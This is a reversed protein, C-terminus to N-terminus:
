FFKCAACAPALVEVVGSDFIVPSLAASLVSLSLMTLELGSIHNQDAALDDLLGV